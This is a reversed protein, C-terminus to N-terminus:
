TCEKPTGTIGCLVKEPGVMAVAIVSKPTSTIGTVSKTATELEDFGPTLFEASVSPPLADYSFAFKIATVDGEGVGRKVLVDVLIDVVDVEVDTLVVEVDVEVLVEVLIDVVVVDVEVVVVDVINNAYVCSTVDLDVTLCDPQVRNNTSSILPRVAGWLIAVSVVVLLVILITAVVGSIGKRMVM